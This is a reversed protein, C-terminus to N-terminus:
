ITLFGALHIKVDHDDRNEEAKVEKSYSEIFRRGKFQDVIWRFRSLSSSGEREGRPLLLVM